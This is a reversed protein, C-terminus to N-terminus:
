QVVPAEKKYDHKFLQPKFTLMVWAWNNLNDSQGSPNGTVPDIRLQEMSETAFMQSYGVQLNADKGLPLSYVIDIESGLSSSYTKSSTIMAGSSMFTHFTAKIKSKSFKYGLTANIDTLGVSNFHNGVYFYDMYGNFKHNTGFLPAFAKNSTSDATSNWNLDNGSQMEFGVGAFIKKDKPAWNVDIGALYGGLSRDALDKGMQYYFTGAIKFDSVAGTIYTGITQSYRVENNDANTVDIYQLGNNLFLFSAGLKNWDNHAWVYQMTKYNGQTTYTTEFLSESDQNFALGLDVKLKKKTYKIMALDHSRAQQAWGVNGFIRHNDYILEQRGARVAILKSIQYQGWAQHVTTGNKDATNLQKVDGWTRVDQFSVFLKVKEKNYSLDFRTRQSIAFAPNSNSDPLTKYGNRLEARPRVQASFILQSYASASALFMAIVLAAKKITKISTNM